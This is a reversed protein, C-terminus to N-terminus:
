VLLLYAMAAAILLLQALNILVSQLHLRRFRPGAADDGGLQLDRAHIIAPMLHQRTYVFLLTVLGCATGPVPAGVFLALLTCLIAVVLGWLYYRPFLAHLFPSAADGPLARFVTPAVVIAFFLMSGLLVGLLGALAAHLNV